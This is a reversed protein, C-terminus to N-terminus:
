RSAARTVSRSATGGRGPLPFRKGYDETLRLAAGIDEGTARSADILRQAWGPLEAKM